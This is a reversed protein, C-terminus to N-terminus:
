PGPATGVVLSGRATGNIEIAYTGKPVHSALLYSDGGPAIVIELPKPTHVLAADRTSGHDVFTVEITYGAPVSVTTPALTGDAAITYTAPIRPGSAPPPATIKPPKSHRTATTTTTAPPTTATTTTVPKTTAPATTAPATTAGGPASTAHSSSGCGSLLLGGIMGSLLLRRSMNVAYKASIPPM